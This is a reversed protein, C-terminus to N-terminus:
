TCRLQYNCCSETVYKNHINRKTPTTHPIPFFTPPAKARLIGVRRTIRINTKYYIYFIDELSKYYLDNPINKQFWYCAHVKLWNYLVLLGERVFQFRTCLRMVGKFRIAELFSMVPKDQQSLVVNKEETFIEINYIGYM